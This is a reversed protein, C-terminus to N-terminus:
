RGKRSTYGKFVFPFLFNRGGVISLLSRGQLSMQRNIDCIRIRRLVTQRSKNVFQLLVNKHRSFHTKSIYENLM